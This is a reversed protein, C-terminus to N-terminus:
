RHPRATARGSRHAPHEDVEGHERRGASPHEWWLLLCIGERRMRRHGRASDTACAIPPPQDRTRAIMTVANAAVIAAIAAAVEEAAAVIAAIFVAVAAAVAATVSSTGGARSAFGAGSLLDSTARRGHSPRWVRVKRGHVTGGGGGRAYGRRLGGPTCCCHHLSSHTCTNTSWCAPSSLICPHSLRSYYARTMGTCTCRRTKGCRCCSDPTCSRYNALCSRPKRSDPQRRSCCGRRHVM